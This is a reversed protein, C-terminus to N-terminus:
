GLARLVPQVPAVISLAARTCNRGSRKASYLGTDARSLADHVSFDTVRIADIGFSATLHSRGILSPWDLAAFETRITEAYRHTDAANGDPLYAAFEEGGFRAIVADTPLLRRLSDALAVIARDGAAHGCQDNVSKFLDIDCTLVCGAPKGSYPLRLIASEFGRRNLLGTLPDCDAANRYGALVEILVASFALLALVIGFIASTAQLIVGYESSLFDAATAPATVYVTSGRTIADAIMVVLLGGLVKDVPHLMRRWVLHLTLGLLVVVSVDGLALQIPFDRLVLTSFASGCGFLAVIAIRTWIPSAVRYQTVLAQGYCAISSTYFLDAVINPWSAKGVMPLAAVVFVSAALLYGAGWWLAAASGWRWVLLFAVGLIALTVPLVFFFTGGM